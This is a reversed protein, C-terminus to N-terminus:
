PAAQTVAGDGRRGCVYYQAGLPVSRLLSEAAAFVAGRWPFFVIFRSELHRLGTRRLLDRLPRSRILEADADFDVRRVVLRTLPNLPNHEFLVVLGGPRVVRAMEALFTPREPPPVHHVVCTAVAVDFGATELPMRDGETQHYAVTPNARRALTLMEASVDTAELAGVEPALFRHAVGSGCGVDLVRMGDPDGLRRAFLSVLSDVKAKTFFDHERGSFAIAREIQEDYSRAHEDFGASV